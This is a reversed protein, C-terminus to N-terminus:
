APPKNDKWRWLHLSAYTRYPAWKASIKLIRERLKKKDKTRLNYIKIVASQLGYDDIAFIDQRGLTFMMLMEVTWQGVGKIQSLLAIVEEDKMALLKKDTIKHEICFNAVNQVYKAKANSLGISRLTEFPTDLVQQPTPEKKNYLGLFRNYIIDAVKTNLQQSMISAMLHVPINKKFKLEHYPENIFAALKADKKLHEVYEM